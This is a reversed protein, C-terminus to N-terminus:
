YITMATLASIEEWNAGTSMFHHFNEEKVLKECLSTTLFIVEDGYSGYGPTYM